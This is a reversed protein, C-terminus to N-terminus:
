CRCFFFISVVMSCFLPTLLFSCEHVFLFFFKVVAICNVVGDTFGDAAIGVLLGAVLVM